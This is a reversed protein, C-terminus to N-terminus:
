AGDLLMRLALEALPTGSRMSEARLLKYAEDETLGHQAMLLGKARDVVRRGELTRNATDLQERLQAAQRYQSVALDVMSRLLSPTIGDVCYAAVGHELAERLLEPRDTRTLLLTPAGSRRGAMSLDELVDRAPSNADVLVADPRLTEIQEYLALPKSVQGLVRFGADELAARLLSSRGSKADVLLVSLKPM